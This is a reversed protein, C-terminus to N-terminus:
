KGTKANYSSKILTVTTVCEGTQFVEIHVESQGQKPFIFQYRGVPIYPLTAEPFAPSNSPVPAIQFVKTLDEKRICINEGQTVFEVGGGTDEGASLNVTKYQVFALRHTDQEAPRYLCIHFKGAAGQVVDACIKHTVDSSM